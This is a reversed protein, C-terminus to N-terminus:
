IRPLELQYEGMGKGPELLLKALTEAEPMGKLETLHDALQVMNKSILDRVEDESPGRLGLSDTHIIPIEKESLLAKESMVAAPLTGEIIMTPVPAPAMTLSPHMKTEGMAEELGVSTDVEFESLLPSAKEESVPLKDEGEKISVEPSPTIETRSDPSLIEEPSKDLALIEGRVETPEPLQQKEQILPLPQLHSREPAEKGAS